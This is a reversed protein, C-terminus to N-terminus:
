FTQEILKHFDEVSAVAEKWDNNKQCAKVMQLMTYSGLKVLATDSNDGKNLQSYEFAGVMNGITMVELLNQPDLHYLAGVWIDSRKTMKKGELSDLVYKKFNDALESLRKNDIGIAESLSDSESSPKFESLTEQYFKKFQNKM